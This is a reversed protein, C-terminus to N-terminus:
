PPEQSAENWGFRRVAAALSAGELREPRVGLTALRDRLAETRRGLEERGAADSRRGWSLVYIRRETRRRLLLRLMEVYAVQAAVDERGVPPARPVWPEPHIPVGVAVVVIGGEISRLIERYQEFIRRLEEPPLFAIPRGRCRLVTAEAGPAIGVIGARADHATSSMTAEVPRLAREWAALRAAVVRDLSRGGVQVVTLLFGVGLVPLWLLPGFAPILVAGVAGYAVFRLADGVSPFPGFRVRRDVPAPLPISVSSLHAGMEDTGGGGM